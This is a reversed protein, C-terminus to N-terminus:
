RIKRTAQRSTETLDPKAVTSQGPEFVEPEHTSDMDLPEEFVAEQAPEEAKGDGAHKDKSPDLFGPPAVAGQLLRSRYAVPGLPPRAPSGASLVKTGHAPPEEAPGIPAERTIRVQTSRALIRKVEATFFEPHDAWGFELIHPLNVLARACYQCIEEHTPVYIVDDFWQLRPVVIELEEEALQPSTGPLPRGAIVLEKDISVDYGGLGVEGDTSKGKAPRGASLTGRRGVRIFRGHEPSVPDGYAMASEWDPGEYGTDYGESLEGFLEELRRGASVPLMVMPIVGGPELGLPIEQYYSEADNAYVIAQLFYNVQPRPLVPLNGGKTDCYRLWQGPKVGPFEPIEKQRNVANYVRWYLISYPNTRPNYGPHLVPNFLVFSYRVKGEGPEGLGRVVLFDRMFGSRGEPTRYPLLAGLHQPDLAPLPRFVLPEGSYRPRVLRAKAQPVLILDGEYRPGDTQIRDNESWPRPVNRPRQVHRLPTQELSRDRTPM